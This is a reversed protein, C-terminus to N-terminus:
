KYTVELFEDYHFRSGSFVGFDGLSKINNLHKYSLPVEFGDKWNAVLMYKFEELDKKPIIKIKKILNYREYNIIVSYLSILGVSAIIINLALKFDPLQTLSVIIAIILIFFYNRSHFFPTKNRNIYNNFEEKLLFIEGEDPQTYRDANLNDEFRQKAEIHNHKQIFPYYFKKDLLVAVITNDTYILDLSNSSKFRRNLLFLELSDNTKNNPLNFTVKSNIKLEQLSLSYSIVKKDSISEDYGIKLTVLGRYKKIIYEEM